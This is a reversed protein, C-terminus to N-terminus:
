LGDPNEDVNYGSGRCTVGLRESHREIVRGNETPETWVYKECWPCFVHNDSKRGVNEKNDESM